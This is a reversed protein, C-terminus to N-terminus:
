KINGLKVDAKSFCLQGLFIDAVGQPDGELGNLPGEAGAAFATKGSDCLSRGGVEPPGVVLRDIRPVSQRPKRCLWATAEGQGVAVPLSGVKKNLEFIHNM